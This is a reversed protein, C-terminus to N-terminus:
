PRWGPRRWPPTMRLARCIALAEPALRAGMGAACCFWGGGGYDDEEDLCYAAHLGPYLYAMHGDCRVLPAMTEADPDYLFVRVRFVRRWRAVRGTM